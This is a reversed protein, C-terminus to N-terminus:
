GVSACIEFLELGKDGGEGRERAFLVDESSQEGAEEGEKGDLVGGGCDEEGM